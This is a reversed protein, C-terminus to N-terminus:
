LIDPTRWSLHQGGDLAIMQGTIATQDLLFLVAAAIEHLGPGRQLLVNQAEAAFTTESQHISQLVPGPGIANVRINPALAQALTQTLTWLATKSVTYSMFDPNLNWVRQDLFNIIAASAPLDPQQAFAQSLLLPALTNIAMHRNFSSSTLSEITDHEFISANNILVSVPVGMKDRVKAILQKVELDSELDATFTDCRVGYELISEATETADGTSGLYHLAIDYGEAALGKAVAQGVRRAGGTVLALGKSANEDPFIM